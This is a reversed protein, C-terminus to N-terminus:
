TQKEVREKLAENMRDYARQPDDSIVFPVLFGTLREHNIFRTRDDDLASLEFTHIGQFIWKSGVTGIWQLRRPPDIESVRVTM